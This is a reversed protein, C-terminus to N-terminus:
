YPSPVHTSQADDHDDSHHQAGQEGPHVAPRDAVDLVPQGVPYLGPLAQGAGRLHLDVSEGEQGLREAVVQVPDVEPEPADLDGGLAALRPERLEVRAEM